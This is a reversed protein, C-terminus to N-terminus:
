AGNENKTLISKNTLINIIQNRKRSQYYFFGGLFLGFTTIIISMLMNIYQYTKIIAINTITNTSLFDNIKTEKVKKNSKLYKISILNMNKATLIIDSTNKKDKITFSLNYKPFIISSVFLSIGLIIYIILPIMLKKNKKESEESLISEQDIQDLNTIRHSFKTNNKINKIINTSLNKNDNENRQILLDFKIFEGKKLIDWNFDVENKNNDNIKATISLDDSFENRKGKIAIFNDPLIMKLPKYIISKDIDSTGTNVMCCRLLTLNPNIAENNYKIEIDDWDNVISDFLSIAEDWYFTIRMKQKFKIAYKIGLYGFIVTAIVGIITLINSFQLLNNM